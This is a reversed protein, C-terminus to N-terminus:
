NDNINRQFVELRPNPLIEQWIRIQLRLIKTILTVCASLQQKRQKVSISSSVASVVQVLKAAQEEKRKDKLKAPPEM